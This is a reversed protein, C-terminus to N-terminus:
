TIGGQYLQYCVSENAWAHGIYAPYEVVQKRYDLFTTECDQKAFYMPKLMLRSGNTIRSVKEGFLSTHLQSASFVNEAFYFAYQNENSTCIVFLQIKGIALVNEEALRLIAEQNLTIQFFKTADDNGNVLGECLAWYIAHAVLKMELEVSGELLEDVTM